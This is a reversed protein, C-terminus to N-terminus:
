NNSCASNKWKENHEYRRTTETEFTEKGGAVNEQKKKKLEQRTASRLNSHKRRRRKATVHLSFLSTRSLKDVVSSGSKTLSNPPVNGGLRGTENRVSFELVTVAWVPLVARMGQMTNFM